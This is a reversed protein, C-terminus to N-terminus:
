KSNLVSPTCGASKDCDSEDVHGEGERVLRCVVSGCFEGMRAEAVIQSARTEAAMLEQIGAGTQASM